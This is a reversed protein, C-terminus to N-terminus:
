TALKRFKLVFQDTRGRIAPDFVIATRPDQANALAPSEGELVFGAATVEAKVTEVDIRHLTRAERVGTGPLAAHDVILYVGGPKLANFVAANTAAAAEAGYYAHIDHYNQATWVVDVLISPSMVGAPTEVTVNAYAPTAALARVPNIQDPAAAAAAQPVLAIVRGQPGVTTSLLRTFYGGGPLMEAVFQGPAVGAFALLLAPKRAADRATDEPPRGADLVAAAIAGEMAAEPTLAEEPTACAALMLGALAFLTVRM